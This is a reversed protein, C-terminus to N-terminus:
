ISGELYRVYKFVALLTIGILLPDIRKAKFLKM